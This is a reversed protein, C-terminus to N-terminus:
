DLKMVKNDVMHVEIDLRVLELEQLSIQSNLQLHLHQVLEEVLLDELALIELGRHGDVVLVEAL